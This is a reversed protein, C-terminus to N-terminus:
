SMSQRGLFRNIQLEPRRMLETDEYATVYAPSKLLQERLNRREEDERWGPEPM